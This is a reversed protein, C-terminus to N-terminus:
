RSRESEPILGLVSELTDAEEAPKDKRWRAMRPFRLAVGSRHRSSARLGDFAIEFVLRPEVSRVPGFRELTHRRVWRDAERIEADTLGSYAKAVPVLAGEHWVGFTYDSHLSARLGHGRQAYIMVADIRFPEVKWKWWDGRPRGSRYPGSRRKLMLGEVGRARSEARLAALSAWDEGEVLPSVALLSAGHHGRPADTAEFLAELRARREHLEVERLDTGDRELLDYALFRVPREELLRASVRTRNLRRQLEAFPRIGGPGWAVIEGDLVTGDPLTQAAQELEPFQPTVLEEGRSWLLAEGRRRILQARIGDWKWEVQWESVAGLPEPGTDPNLPHALFFPYPRGPDPITSDPSVIRAFDAATPDW